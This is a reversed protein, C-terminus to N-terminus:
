MHWRATYASCMRDLMRGYDADVDIGLPNPRPLSPPNVNDIEVPVLLVDDYGEVHTHGAPRTPLTRMLAVTRAPDAQTNNSIAWDFDRWLSADGGSLRPLVYREFEEPRNRYVKRVQDPINLVQRCLGVLVTAVLLAEPRASHIAALVKRLDDFRNTRNRHATIVSKNEIAIRVRDIRPRVTLAQSASSWTWRACAIAQRRFM